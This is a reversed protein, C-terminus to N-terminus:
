KCRRRSRLWKAQGMESNRNARLFKDVCKRFAELVVADADDVARSASSVTVILGNDKVRIAIADLYASCM